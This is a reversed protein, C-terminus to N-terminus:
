FIQVRHTGFWYAKSGLIKEFVFPNEEEGGKDGGFGKKKLGNNAREEMAGGETLFQNIGGIRTQRLRGRPESIVPGVGQFRDDMGHGNGTSNRQSSHDMGDCNRWSFSQEGYTPNSGGIRRETASLRVLQAIGAVNM